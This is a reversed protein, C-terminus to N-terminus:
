YFKRRVLMEQIAIKRFFYNLSYCNNKNQSQMNFKRSYMAKLSLFNELKNVFLIKSSIKKAILNNVINFM